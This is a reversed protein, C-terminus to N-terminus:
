DCLYNKVFQIAKKENNKAKKIELMLKKREEINIKEIEKKAEDLAQKLFIEKGKKVNDEYKKTLLSRKKETMKIISDAKSRANMIKRNVEQEKRKIENVISELM